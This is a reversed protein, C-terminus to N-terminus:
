EEDAEARKLKRRAIETLYRKRMRVFNPTVEVLEDDAIYELAEELSMKQAPTIKMARDSSAARMNTLKKEKQVNVILDDDKCHEGVIMGEYTMEGPDIFFIGRQQLGDIAFPVARGKDMSVLVGNLRRPFEGKFPAYELFRHSIIAQGATATMIKSRLGIIGRTPMNFELLVRVGHQEMLFMEGKRMGALEIVKGSLETPVDVTLIEIPECKQGDITKIIVQPQSVSMEYGERRMNEILIALHLVGRGSVRFSDSGSDEIKMAVDKEAEKYLRERLHRSSVYKGDKGYFPSDNVRFTMALTPEDITIPPLIEPSLADTVTDSIDIKDIGVVACLDGCQVVDTEKREIGEFTLLQKLQAQQVEGNRKIVVIPKKIDLNGRYVRGIGIRGVYDSYDLTSVQMQVPGEFTKPAPIKEIITDMLPLMSNREGGDQEFSVWGERGSAYLIPFDIQHDHANLEFFLEYIKDLVEKPRGDARDIKNIIVIPHLKLKLAKDLVFRTQPLPGEAADVLLLVGDAMNLVREVQGGFDSHGPTDIINIKIGKYKISINKALITIGRERELDNSDLFCEHMSQNDRFLKAQKIIQDVLTTKGHDVHAIIAINRIDSM